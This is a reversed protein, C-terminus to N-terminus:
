FTLFRYSVDAFTIRDGEELKRPKKYVLTEGNVMTGNRSNMDEIYYGEERKEIRAHLREAAPSDIFGDVIEEEAGVLFRKEGLFFDQGEGQGLYLLKVPHSQPLEEEEEQYEEESIYKPETKRQRGPLKEEVWKRAEEVVGAVMPSLGMFFNEEKILEGECKIEEEAYIERTTKREESKEQKVEEQKMEERQYFVKQLELLSYNEELSKQYLEYAIQVNEEKSHDLKQLLIEMLERFSRKIDDTRGPQYCFYFEETQNDVFVTEPELRLGDETLLHKELERCVHICRCLLNKLFEADVDKRELFYDLAMKGTIEYSLYVQGDEMSIEMPLLGSIHNYELMRIEYEQYPETEELVMFSQNWTRRYDAKMGKGGAM